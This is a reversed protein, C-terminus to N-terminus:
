EDYPAYDGLTEVVGEGMVVRELRATYVTKRRKAQKFAAIGDLGLTFDQVDEIGNEDLTLRYVQQAM